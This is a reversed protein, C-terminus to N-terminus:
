PKNPKKVLTVDCKETIQGIVKNLSHFPEFCYDVSLRNSQLDIIAKRVFVLLLTRLEVRSLEELVVGAYRELFEKSCDENTMNVVKNLLEIIRTHNKQLGEKARALGDKWFDYNPHNQPLCNQKYEISRLNNEVLTLNKRLAREWKQLIKRIYDSSKMVQHELKENLNSFISRHVSEIDVKQHCKPCKYFLYKKGCKGPSQDKGDLKENCKVCYLIGRLLFPTDHKGFQYKFMKMRSSIEWTLASILEDHVKPLMGIEHMKRRVGSWHNRAAADPYYGIYAPNNLIVDITSQNWKGHTPSRVDCDNLLAAITANSHGWGNLYYIFSVIPARDPDALYAQGLKRFGFPVRYEPRIACFDNNETTKRKSYLLNHRYSKIRNANARSEEESLILRFKVQPDNENWETEQNTSFFKMTPYIARLPRVVNQVFDSFQRDIRSEEFFIFGEINEQRVIDFLEHVGHRKLAAKKYASVADDKIWNVIEYGHMAAKAEIAAMQVDFSNNGVQQISSRRLYGVAKKYATDQSNL